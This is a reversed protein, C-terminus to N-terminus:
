SQQKNAKKRTIFYYITCVLGIVILLGPFLGIPEGPVVGFTRLLALVFLLLFVVLDIWAIITTRKQM